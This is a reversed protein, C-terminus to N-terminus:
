GPILECSRTPKAGPWAARDRLHRPHSGAHAVSQFLFAPYMNEFRAMSANLQQVSIKPQAVGGSGSGSGAAGTVTSRRIQGADGVSPTETGGPQGTHPLSMQSDPSVEDVQGISQPRHPSPTHVGGSFAELQGASQRTAGNQPSSIQL